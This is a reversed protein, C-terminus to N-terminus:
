ITKENKKQYEDYTLNSYNYSVSTDNRLALWTALKTNERVFFVDYAAEYSWDTEPWDEIRLGWEIVQSM